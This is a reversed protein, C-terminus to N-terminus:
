QLFQDTEQLLKRRNKEYLAWHTANKISVEKKDKSSTLEKYVRRDAFSDLEGYIVLTPATIKSMDYLPRDSWIAFLDKLPGMPRRIAGNQKEASPDSDAFVKSVQKFAQHTVIRKGGQMMFWHQMGQVMKVQQYAPAKENFQTPDQKSQFPKTMMPLKFGHMFGYLVLKNVNQPHKAAYEGAVVGGWSWGVLDVSDVKREKKLYNIVKELDRLSDKHDIVPKNKLPPQSMEVPRSSRGFGKFDMAWTDYGQKAMHDMWSYGPVDFAKASPVSFPELFLLVRKKNKPLTKGAVKHRLYLQEGPNAGQIKREDLSVKKTSTSDNQQCGAFLGVLICLVIASAIHPWRKRSRM